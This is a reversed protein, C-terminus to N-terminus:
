QSLIPIKVKTAAGSATAAVSDHCSNMSDAQQNKKQSTAPPPLRVIVKPKPAHHTYSSTGNTMPMDVSIAPAEKDTQLVPAGTDLSSRVTTPNGQPKPPGARQEEGNLAGHANSQPVNSENGFSGMVPKGQNTPPPLKTTVNISTKERHLRRLATTFKDGLSKPGADQKQSRSNLQETRGGVISNREGKDTSFKGGKDVGRPNVSSKEVINTARHASAQALRAADLDTGFGTKLLTDGCHTKADAVRQSQELRILDKALTRRVQDGRSSFRLLFGLLDTPIPKFMQIRQLRMLLEKSLLHARLNKEFRVFPPSKWYTKDQMGQMSGNLTAKTVISAFVQGYDMSSADSFHEYVYKAHTSLLREMANVHKEIEKMLTDEPKGSPLIVGLRQFVYLRALCARMKEDLDGDKSEIPDKQGQSLWRLFWGITQRDAREM